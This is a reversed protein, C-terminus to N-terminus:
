ASRQLYKSVAGLGIAEVFGIGINCRHCLIGRIKKTAHNHDVCMRMPPRSCAACVGGQSALMEAVQQPTMRYRAMYHYKKKQEPTMHRVRSEKQKANACKKCHSHRGKPGKPQRHFETLPKTSSCITCTKSELALDSSV